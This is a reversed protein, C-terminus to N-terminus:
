LRSCLPHAPVEQPGWLHGQNSLIVAVVSCLLCVSLSHSLFESFVMLGSLLSVFKPVARLEGPEVRSSLEAWQPRISSGYPRATQPACFCGVCRSGGPSSYSWPRIWHADEQRLAFALETVIAAEDWACLRM